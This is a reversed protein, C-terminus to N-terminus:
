YKGKKPKGTKKKGTTEEEQLYARGRKEGGRKTDKIGGSPLNPVNGRKM